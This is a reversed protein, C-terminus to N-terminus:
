CESKTQTQKLHLDFSENLDGKKWNQLMQIWPMENKPGREVRRLIEKNYQEYEGSYWIFAVCCQTDKDRM